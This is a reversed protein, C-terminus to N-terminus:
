NSSSMSSTSCVWCEGKEEEDEQSHTCLTGPVIDCGANKMRRVTQVYHVWYSTASPM